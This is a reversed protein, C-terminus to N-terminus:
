NTTYYIVFTNEENIFVDDSKDFQYGGALLASEIAAETAEDKETFYFEVQYRNESWYHTNDAREVTQGNGIYVLYPPDQKTKFHSYAAPLKTDALVDYINDRTM